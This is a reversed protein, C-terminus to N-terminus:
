TLYGSMARLRGAGVVAVSPCTSCDAWLVLTTVTFTIDIYIDHLVPLKMLSMILDMMTNEWWREIYRFCAKLLSEGRAMSKEVAIRLSTSLPFNCSIWCFHNQLRVQTASLLRSESGLRRRMLLKQPKYRKHPVKVTVAKKSNKTRVIRWYILYLCFCIIEEEDENDETDDLLRGDWTMYLKISKM